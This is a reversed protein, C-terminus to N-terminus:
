LPCVARLGNTTVGSVLREFDDPSLVALAASKAWESVQADPNRSQRLRSGMSGDRLTKVTIM